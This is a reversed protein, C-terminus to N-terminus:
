SESFISGHLRVPQLTKGWFGKSNMCGQHPFLRTFRTFKLFERSSVFYKNELRENASKVISHKLKLWNSSKLVCVCVCVCVQATSMTDPKEVLGQLIDLEKIIAIIYLDRQWYDCFTFHKDECYQINSLISVNRSVM